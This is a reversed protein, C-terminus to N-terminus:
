GSRTGLSRSSKWVTLCRGSRLWGRGGFWDILAGGRTGSCRTGRLRIGVLDLSLDRGGPAGVLDKGAWTGTSAPDSDITQLSYPTPYLTHLIRPTPHPHPARPAPHPIHPTSQLTCPTPHPSHPTPIPLYPGKGQEKGESAREGM